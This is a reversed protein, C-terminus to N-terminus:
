ILGDGYLLRSIELVMNLELNCEDCLEENKTKKGCYDCKM